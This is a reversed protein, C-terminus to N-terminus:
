RGVGRGKGEWILELVSSPLCHLQRATAFMAAFSGSFRSSSESHSPMMAPLSGERQAHTHLIVSLSVESYVECTENFHKPAGANGLDFLCCGPLNTPLADTGPVLLKCLPM